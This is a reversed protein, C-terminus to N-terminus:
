AVALSHTRVAVIAKSQNFDETYGAAYLCCSLLNTIPPPLPVQGALADRTWRATSRADPHEPLRAHRQVGAAVHLPEADFLTHHEGATFQEIAPRQQPDAYAEGEGGHFLLAHGSHETLVAALSAAQEADGAPLLKLGEGDFPDILGAVEQAWNPFGLRHRLSLLQMLAPSLLATPLYAIRGENLTAQAERLSSCPLVGLERFIAASAIRGQAELTGHVVVPLGFRAALMAILPMLNAHERTGHYSPIVLPRMRTSAGAPHDLRAVHVRTAAYLGSLEGAGPRRWALAALIAGLEIEPIGGGLMASFLEESDSASMEEAPHAVLHKLLQAAIM